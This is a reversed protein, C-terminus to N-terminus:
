RTVRPIVGGLAQAGASHGSGVRQQGLAAGTAAQTKAFRREGRLVHLHDSTEGPLGQNGGDSQGDRATGDCLRFLFDGERVLVHEDGHARDHFRTLKFLGSAVLDVPAHKTTPTVDDLGHGATIHLNAFGTGARERRRGALPLVDLQDPDQVVDRVGFREDRAVARADVADFVQLAFFDGRRKHRGRVVLQHCGHLQLTDVGLAHVDHVHPWRFNRRSPFTPVDVGGKNPVRHQALDFAVAFGNGAALANAGLTVGSKVAQDDVGLPGGLM